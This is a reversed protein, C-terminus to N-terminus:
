EVNKPVKSLVRNAYKTSADNGAGNYCQLAAKVNKHTHMCDSLITMGMKINSVPDYVDKNELKSIKDRHVGPMVQMFGLAGVSSVAFQKFESEAAILGLVLKVPINKAHGEEVISASLRTVVDDSLTPNKSRIFEIVREEITVIHVPAVPVEEIMDIADAMVVGHASHMYGTYFVISCIFIVAVFFIRSKRVFGFGNLYILSNVNIIRISM